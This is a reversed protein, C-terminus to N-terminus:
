AAKASASALAKQCDRELLIETKAAGVLVDATSAVDARVQDRLKEADEGTFSEEDIPGGRGLTSAANYVLYMEYRELFAEELGAKSM